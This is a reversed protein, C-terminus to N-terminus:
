ARADPARRLRGKMAGVLLPGGASVVGDIMGPTFWDRPTIYITGLVLFRSPFGWGIVTVVGSGGGNGLYHRVGGPVAGAVLRGDIFTAVRGTRVLGRGLPPADPVNPRMAELAALGAAHSGEAWGVRIAEFGLRNMVVKYRADRRAM